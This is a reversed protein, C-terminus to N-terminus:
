PEGPMDWRPDIQPISKGLEEDDAYGRAFSYLWRGLLLAIAPDDAQQRAQLLEQIVERKSPDAEFRATALEDEFDLWTLWGRRELMRATASGAVVVSLDVELFPTDVVVAPDQSLLESGPMWCLHEPSIVAYWPEGDRAFTDEVWLDAGAPVRPRLEAPWMLGPSDWCRSTAHGPPPSVYRAANELHHLNATALPLARYVGGRGAGCSFTVSFTKVDSTLSAVLQLARDRVAGDDPSSRANAIELLADTDEYDPRGLRDIAFLAASAPGVRGIHRLAENAAPIERWRALTDIAEVDHVVDNLALSEVLEVSDADPLALVANRAASRSAPDEDSRAMRRLEPLFRRSGTAALAAILDPRARVDKEIAFREEVIAALKPDGTREILRAAHRRVDPSDHALAARLVPGFATAADFPPVEDLIRAPIRPDDRRSIARTLASLLSADCKGAGVSNPDAFVPNQLRDKGELLTWVEEITGRELTRM